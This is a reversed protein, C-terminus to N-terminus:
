YYYIKEPAQRYIVFLWAARIGVLVDMRNRLDAAGTDFNYSRRNRTFNESFALGVNFNALGRNSMFLYGVGQTIGVGNTLRDYGKKYEKSLASANNTEVGIQIKHQIFQIGLEAYLGSNPNPSPLVSPFVKGVSLPIMVGTENMRTRTLSGEDNIILSNSGPVYLNQLVSDKVKGGFLYQAGVQLYYNNDFKRTYSVGVASTYGFRAKMDALPLMGQYLFGIHNLSIVSDKLSKQASLDRYFFSYILVLIIVKTKKMFGRRTPPADM